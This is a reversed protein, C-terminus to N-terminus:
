ASLKKATEGVRVALIGALKLETESPMRSGDGAAITTAGYFSGGEVESTNFLLPESQPLGVFIMGHHIFPIMGTLLTSEQGSHQTASGTILGFPKGILTGSQWISGTADVFTSFQGAMNGFRTPFAFIFGDYEQLNKVEAKKVGSFAKQAELAGMKELIEDPLTEEVRLLEADYGNDKLEKYAAQAMGYLHGYTSYFIIGIKM